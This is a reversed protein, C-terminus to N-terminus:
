PSHIRFYVISRKHSKKGEFTATWLGRELEKVPVLKMGTIRGESSSGTLSREPETYVAGTPSTYFRSVIEGGQAFGWAEFTFTSGAAGCQPTVSGDVNAPLGSCDIEAPPTVKFYGLSKRGSRLGEMTVTWVGPTDGRLTNIFFADMEGKAGAPDTFDTGYVRGNPLTVYAGVPEGPVFGSGAFYFTSGAEACPPKVTVNQGAPIGTCDPGAAQTPGPAPVPTQTPAAPAPSQYKAGYRFTGLLSLLVDNPPQNEPHHEFVAREFYQVRYEKGDLPSKEVFEDSLPYGQQALGGNQQWYQLFRGGVRKGTASFLMSGPDNNPQQGPAGSPYKRGYEFAGLLSLLVDNPAANEAHLEFVARQFYQVMYTKGDTDSKEQMEESIPYGQQALGGQTNWYQLFRGKVTKGTEPFTRTTEQAGAKGALPAGQIVPLLLVLVIAAVLRKGTNFAM